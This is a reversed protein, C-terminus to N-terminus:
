ALSLLMARVDDGVEVLRAGRYLHSLLPLDCHEIFTREALGPPLLNQFRGLELYPGIRKALRRAEDEALVDDWPPLAKLRFPLRLCLASPAEIRGIVGPQTEERPNAEPSGSAFPTPERRTDNGTAVEDDLFHAALVSALLAGFVDGWFHFFWIDGRYRFCSPEGGTFGLHRAIAQSM